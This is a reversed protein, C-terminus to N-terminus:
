IDRAKLFEYSVTHTRGGETWQITLDIAKTNTLQGSTIETVDWDLTYKGDVTDTGDNVYAYDQSVFQEILNAGIRSAETLNNSQHGGRIATTQMGLVALIGFAFIVLAVMVEILTFGEETAPKCKKNPNKQCTM